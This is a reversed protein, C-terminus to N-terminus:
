ICCRIQRQLCHWAPMFHVGRRKDQRVLWGKFETCLGHYSLSHLGSLALTLARRTACAGNSCTLDAMFAKWHNTLRLFLAQACCLSDSNMRCMGESGLSIQSESTGLGPLSGGCSRVGKAQVAAM